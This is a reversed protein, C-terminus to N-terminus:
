SLIDDAVEKAFWLTSEWAVRCAPNRPSLTFESSKTIEHSVYMNYMEFVWRKNRKFLAMPEFMFSASGNSIPRELEPGQLITAPRDDLDYGCAEYENVFNIMDTASVVGAVIM